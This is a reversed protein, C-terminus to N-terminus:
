TPTAKTWRGLAELRYKLTKADVNTGVRRGFGQLILETSFNEQNIILAKGRRKHNM